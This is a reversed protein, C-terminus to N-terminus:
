KEWSVIDMLFRLELVLRIRGTEVLSLSYQQKDEKGRRGGWKVIQQSCGTETLAGNSNEISEKEGKEIQSACTLM